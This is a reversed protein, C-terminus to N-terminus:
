PIWQVIGTVPHSARYEYLEDLTRVGGDIVAKYYEIGMIKENDPTLYKLTIITRREEETLVASIREAMHEFYGELQSGKAMHIMDIQWSTNDHGDYYWAHWEICQEETDLLNAYEIRKIAPHSALLRIAEFSNLINLPSSYIHFDIDRHKVLLGMKLSGVLNITAGVSQWIEVIGTESIIEDAKKANIEALHKATEYVNM